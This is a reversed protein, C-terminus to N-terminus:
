RAPRLSSVNDNMGMSGLSPYRGPGLVVCRGGFERRDCFEWSGGTIVASSAANRFGELREARRDLTVSRGRFSGHEYLTVQGVGPRPTVAAVPRASSIRNNLGMENLSPYQGRRLVVCRGSFGPGDCVEWTGSEVVVSSARNNLGSRDFDHVPGNASFSRGHFDRREHFTIGGGSPPPPYGPTGGAGAPRVSAIGDNMGALSAHRGPPVVACQGSFGPGTCLEWSGGSVVVSSARNRFGFRDLNGAPRDVTVSQGRFGTHEYLTIQALAQMAIVLGCAGFAYKFVSKM